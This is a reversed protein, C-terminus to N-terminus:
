DSRLATIPDVNSARRAPLYSALMGVGIMAVSMLAFVLPDVAKVGFLLTGLFRTSSSFPRHASSRAGRTACTVDPM